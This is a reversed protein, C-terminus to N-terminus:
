VCEFDMAIRELLDIQMDAASCLVKTNRCNPQIKRGRDVLRRLREAVDRIIEAKENFDIM